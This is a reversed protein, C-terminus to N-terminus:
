DCLYVSGDRELHPTLHYGYGVFTIIYEVGDICTIEYPIVKVEPEGTAEPPSCSVVFVIAFVLLSIYYKM